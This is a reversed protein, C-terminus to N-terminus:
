AAGGVLSAVVALGALAVGAALLGLGSVLRYRSEVGRDFFFGDGTLRLAGWITLVGAGLALYEILDSM